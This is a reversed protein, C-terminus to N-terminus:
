VTKQEENVNKETWEDLSGRNYLTTILDEEETKKKPSREGEAPFGGRGV